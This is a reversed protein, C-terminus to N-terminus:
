PTQASRSNGSAPSRTDVVESAGLARVFGADGDFASAIVRRGSRRALRCAYAGVNGAGGHVFMTQGQSGACSWVADAMRHRQQLVSKGALVWADWPGVGAAQVRVLVDDDGPAPVEARHRGAPNSLVPWSSKISSLPLGLVITQSSPAIPASSRERYGAGAAATSLVSRSTMSRLAM